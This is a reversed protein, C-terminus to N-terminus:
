EIKRREIERQVAVKFDLIQKYRRVTEETLPRVPYKQLEQGLLRNIIKLRGTTLRM